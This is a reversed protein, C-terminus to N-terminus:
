LIAYLHSTIIKSEPKVEEKKRGFGWAAHVVPILSFAAVGYGRGGAVNPRTCLQLSPVFFVCLNCAM